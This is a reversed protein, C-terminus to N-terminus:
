RTKAYKTKNMYCNANLALFIIWKASIYMSLILFYWYCRINKLFSGCECFILLWVIVFLPSGAKIFSWVFLTDRFIKISLFWDVSAVTALIQFIKAAIEACMKGNYTRQRYLGVCVIWNYTSDLLRSILLRLVIMCLKSRYNFISYFHRFESQEDIKHDQNPIALSCFETLHENSDVLGHQVVIVTSVQSIQSIRNPLM